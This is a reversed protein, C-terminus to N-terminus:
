RRYRGPSPVYEGLRRPGERGPLVPRCARRACGQPGRDRYDRHRRGLALLICIEYYASALGALGTMKVLLLMPEGTSFGAPGANRAPRRSVDGEASQGTEPVGVDHSP